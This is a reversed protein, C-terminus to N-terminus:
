LKFKWNFIVQKPSWNLIKRAKADDFTLDKTLKTLLTSNLPCNTFFDGIKSLVWIPWFPLSWPMKLGLEKCMHRELEYLSPHVGDTLNYIGEANKKEVILNAIDEAFVMSKRASGKGIRHYTGKKLGALMKGLNGPPNEGVILPLRLICLKVDKASCWKSLYAEAEIKSKAYSSSGLLPNQENINTGEELGYVAVTSIFVFQEPLASELAKCLQITGKLNVAFMHEDNKAKKHALGACHVVRNFRQELVFPSSIDKTITKLGVVSQKSAIFAKEIYQGLFGSNGTILIM